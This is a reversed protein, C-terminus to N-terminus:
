APPISLWDGLVERRLLRQAERESDDKSGCPRDLLAAVARSFAEFRRQSFVQASTVPLVGIGMLSLAASREADSLWSRENDHYMTSQCEVDLGDEWYLDCYCCSRGALRRASESLDVKHSHTLGGYGEGGRGRELGLLIGTQAEFPSAAGSVVLAAAEALRRKGRLRGVDEVLRAVDPPVLLPPRM